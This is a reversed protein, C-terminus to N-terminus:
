KNAYIHNCITNLLPVVVNPESEKTTFSAIHLLKEINDDMKEQSSTNNNMMCTISCNYLVHAAMMRVVDKSHQLCMLAHDSVNQLSALMSALQVDKFLNCINSLAMVRVAWPIDISSIKKSEDTENKEENVLASRNGSSFYLLLDLLACLNSSPSSSKSTEDVLLLTATVNPKLFVLRLIGLVGLLTDPMWKLLKFIFLDFVEKLKPLESTDKDSLHKILESLLETDNLTLQLDTKQKKSATKVLVLFSALKSDHSLMPKGIPQFRRFSLSKHGDKLQQSTPQFSSPKEFSPVIKFTQSETSSKNSNAHFNISTSNSSISNPSNSVLSAIYKDPTHISADFTSNQM